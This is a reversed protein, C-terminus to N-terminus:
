GFPQNGTGSVPAVAAQIVSSLATGGSTLVSGTQSNKSVLVAVIAVGLIGAVIAAIAEVAQNV